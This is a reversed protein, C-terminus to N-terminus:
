AGGDARGFSISTRQATPRSLEQATNVGIAGTAARVPDDSREYHRVLAELSGTSL